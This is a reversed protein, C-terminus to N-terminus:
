RNVYLEGYAFETVVCIERNTEFWELMRVINVHQLESLISMESKLANLDKDTKGKKIIFKLACIQGTSRQRGKYVKGFSGEGILDIIHYRDM